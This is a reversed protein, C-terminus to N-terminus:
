KSPPTPKSIGVDGAPRANTARVGTLSDGLEARAKAVEAQLRAVVDPNADAVDRTEGPDHKLDFLGSANPHADLM